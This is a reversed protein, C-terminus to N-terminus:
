QSKEQQTLAAATLDAEVDAAVTDDAPTASESPRYALFRAFAGANTPGFARLDIVQGTAPDHLLLRGTDTQRISFPLERGIDAARRARVLSRVTSRLFGNSGPELVDVVAGDGADVVVVSGDDSDQFFLDIQAVAPELVAENAPPDAFRIWATAVLALVMLSVGATLPVGPYARWRRRAPKKDRGGNGDPAAPQAQEEARALRDELADALIAAVRKADPLARLVPRVRLWRWPKVFPWLLLFSARSSRDTTLSIDGGGDGRLRLDAAEIRSFPLNVTLPLAVGCRIVVRRDTITFRTARAVLRAYVLLIGIAAAALVALWVSGALAAAVGAGDGGDGLALAIRLLLLVVFYVALKRVHFTGLALSAFGPEGQWLLREGEPLAEPLGPVPEDDHELM